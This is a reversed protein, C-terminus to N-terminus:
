FPAGKFDNRPYRTEKGDVTVSCIGDSFCGTNVAEVKGSFTPAHHSISLNGFSARTKPGFYGEAPTIGNKLQYKALARQTLSGFYGTAGVAKLELAAPGTAADILHQQIWVVGEGRSSLSLDSSPMNAAHALPAILFAFATMALFRTARTTMATTYYM